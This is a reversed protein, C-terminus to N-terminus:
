CHVVQGLTLQGPNLLLGGFGRAKDIELLSMVLTKIIRSPHAIPFKSGSKAAFIVLSLPWRVDVLRYASKKVQPYSDSGCVQLASFGDSLTRNFSSEAHSRCHQSLRNLHGPYDTNITVPRM